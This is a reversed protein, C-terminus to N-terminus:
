VSVAEKEKKKSVKKPKEDVPKDLQAKLAAIEADKEAIAESRAEKRAEELAKQGPSVNDYGGLENKAFGMAQLRGMAMDHMQDAISKGDAPIELKMEEFFDKLDPTYDVFWKAHRGYHKSLGYGSKGVTRTEGNQIILHKVIERAPVPEADEKYLVPVGDLSGDSIEVFIKHEPFNLRYWGKENNINDGGWKPNTVGIAFSKRGIETGKCLRIVESM